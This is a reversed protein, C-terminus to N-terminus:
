GCKGGGVKRVFARDSVDTRVEIDAMWLCNRADLEDCKERLSNMEGVVTSRAVQM